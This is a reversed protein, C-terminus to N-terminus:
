VNKGQSSANVIEVFIGVSLKKAWNESEATFYKFHPYISWFSIDILIRVQNVILRNLIKSRLKKHNLFVVIVTVNGIIGVPAIALQVFHMVDVNQVNEKLFSTGENIYPVETETINLLDIAFSYFIIVYIVFKFMFNICEYYYHSHRLEHTLCSLYLSCTRCPQNLSLYDPLKSLGFNLNHFLTKRM